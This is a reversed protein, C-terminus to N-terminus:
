LKYREILRRARPHGARDAQELWRRAEPVRGLDANVVGALLMAGPEGMEAAREELPLARLLTARDEPNAQILLQGYRMLCFPQGAEAGVQSWYMEAQADGARDALETLAAFGRHDGLEAAASFWDRARPLDGQELVACALNWASKAQGHRAAKEWWFISASVRGLQENACGADFMADLHGLQAAEEYHRLATEKDGDFSAALGRRYAQSAADGADAAAIVTQIHDTLAKVESPSLLQRPADPGGASAPGGAPGPGGAPAPINILNTTFFADLDGAWPTEAPAIAASLLTYNGGEFFPSDMASSGGMSAPQWRHKKMVTLALRIQTRAQESLTKRDPPATLSAFLVRYVTEPLDSGALIGHGYLDHRLAQCMLAGARMMSQYDDYAEYV